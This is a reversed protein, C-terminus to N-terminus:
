RPLSQLGLGVRVAIEVPSYDGDAREVQLPGRAYLPPQGM